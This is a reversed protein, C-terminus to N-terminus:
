FSWGLGLDVRNQNRDETFRRVDAKLVVQPGLMFQAGVTVVRETPAAAPTLPAPDLADFHAATDFTEVRAFGSLTNRGAEWLLYAAQAYWGQFRQPILHAGGLHLQNFAATDQITGQAFVSSLELRGTSWRGHLDWLTTTMPPVGAQGQGGRGRFLSGGLLLGPVGRWNLAAFGALDHSNAQSLEQHVAGLPSEVGDQSDVNWSGFNFSTCLGAQVTLGNQFTGLIQLGGERWTSPIIATEVFNREVGYFVTPEHHENLMGAPILFLGARASWPGGLQRELYAQEIEIEGKDDASAVAHEVEVESVLETKDDFRHTPTLVFRLLDARDQSGDRTFHSFAIEGYGGITTDSAPRSALDRKVQDLEQALAEVKRALDEPAEQAQLLTGAVLLALLSSPLARM